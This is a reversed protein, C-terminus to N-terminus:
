PLARVTRRVQRAFRWAQYRGVRPADPQSWTLFVQRVDGGSVRGTDRVIRYLEDAHRRYGGSLDGLPDWEDLLATIAEEARQWDRVKRRRPPETM